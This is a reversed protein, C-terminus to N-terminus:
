RGLSVLPRAAMRAAPRRAILTLQTVVSPARCASLCLLPAIMSGWYQNFDNGAVSFAIAYSVTALSILRGAPTNWTACGLLACSLFVATVWQPLLLLYANMQATSILFGAGGFRIWGDVHATDATDIRPLVHSLHVAYFVGYALLGVTWWGLERWRRQWFALGMCVVCYPAALERFFLAAVGTTVGSKRQGLGFFVASLALLVGSWLESMVLLQGLVCPMLAGALLVAVIMAQSTSGENAMLQFSLCILLLGLGGLICKSWDITPLSAVFWVPLPTRWNFVSRTPYGRARLEAAAADYYRMGDRMRTIEASYLGVDGPGRDPADAFGSRLPSFTIAVFFATVLAFLALVMRAHWPAYGLISIREPAVTSPSSHSM